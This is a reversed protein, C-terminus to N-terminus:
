FRVAASVVADGRTLYAADVQFRPGFVIGGGFTGVSQGTQGLSENGGTVTFFGARGFLRAQGFAYLEYEGGVNVETANADPDALVTAYDVWSLDVAILAKPLVRPRLGVGGGIRTPMVAGQEGEGSAAATVGITLMESARWLAGIIVGTGSDSDEFTPDSVSLTHRAVTVGVMVDTMLTTAFSGGLSTGSAEFGVGEFNFYQNLVIGVAFRDGIPTSAGIFSLSAPSGLVTGFGDDETNATKFEAYVQPRTLLILGAPNTVVATADDAVGIFARGMANARAGPTSVSFFQRFDQAAAPASVALGLVVAVVLRTLPRLTDM